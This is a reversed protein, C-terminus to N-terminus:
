SCSRSGSAPGSARRPSRRWARHRPRAAPRAVQRGPLPRRVVRRQGARRCRTALPVVVDPQRRRRVHRGDLHLHVPVRRARAPVQRRARRPRRRPRARDARDAPRVQGDGLPRRQFEVSRAVDVYQDWGNSTCNQARPTAAPRASGSRSCWRTSSSRDALIVMSPALMLVATPLDRWRSGSTRQSAVVQIYTVRALSRAGALSRGVVAQTAPSRMVDVADGPATCSASTAQGGHLRRRIEVGDGGVEGVDLRREIPEVVPGVPGVLDSAVGSGSSRGRRAASLGAIAGGSGRSASGRRRRRRRRADAEARQGGGGPTLSPLAIDHRDRRM